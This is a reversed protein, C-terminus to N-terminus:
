VIDKHGYALSDVGNDLIYRKGDYASLSKKDMSVTYIEHKDSRFVTMNHSTQGASFLINKYDEHTIDKKVVAKVIGKARKKEEAETKLSYMKSRLGVFEVIPVGNLEDKMKGIIKKNVESYLHHDKPYDSTDFLDIDQFLFDIKLFANM